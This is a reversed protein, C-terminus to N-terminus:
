RETIRTTMMDDDDDADHSDGGKIRLESSGQSPATVIDSDRDRQPKLLGAAARRESRKGHKADLM